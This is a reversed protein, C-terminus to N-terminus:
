PKRLLFQHRRVAIREARGSAVFEDVARQVGNDWVGRRGYDDGTIWGGSKVKPLFGNLDRKVDDYDHSADIYVWDFYEDAFQGVADFSFSRHLVAVSAALAPAFKARVMDYQINPTDEGLWTEPRDAAREDSASKSHMIWPDILHLRAPQTIALIRRSFDGALVGIEACIANRPMRRLLFDRKAARRAARSRLREILRAGPLLEISPYPTEGERNSAYSSLRPQMTM